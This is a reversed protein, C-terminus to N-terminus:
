LSTILPKDQFRDPASMNSLLCERHVRLDVVENKLSEIRADIVDVM